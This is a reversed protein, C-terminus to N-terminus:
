WLPWYFYAAAAAAGATGVGIVVWQWARSGRPETQKLVSPPRLGPAQLVFRQEGLRLEDGSNLAQREVPEGNVWAPGTSELTLTQGDFLIRAHAAKLGEICIGAQKSSGISTDEHLAFRRGTIPGSAAKLSFQM